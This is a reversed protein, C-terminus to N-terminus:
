WALKYSVCGNKASELVTRMSLCELPITAVLQANTAITQRSRALRAKCRMTAITAFDM